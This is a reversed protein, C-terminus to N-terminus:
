GVYNEQYSKLLAQSDEGLDDISLCIQLSWHGDSHPEPILDEVLLRVRMATGRFDESNRIIYM